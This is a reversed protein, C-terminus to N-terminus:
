LYQDIFLDNAEGTLRIPFSNPAITITKFEGSFKHPWSDMTNLRVGEGRVYIKRDKQLYGRFHRMDTTPTGNKVWSVESLLMITTPGYVGRFNRISYGENKKNATPGCYMEGSVLQSAAARADTGYAISALLVVALSTLLRKV